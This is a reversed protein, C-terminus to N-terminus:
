PHSPFMQAPPRRLFVQSDHRASRSDQWRHDNPGRPCQDPCFVLYVFQRGQVMPCCYLDSVFRFDTGVHSVCLSFWSFILSFGEYFLEVPLLFKQSLVHSSRHVHYFKVTSHIVIFVPWQVVQLAAFVARSGPSFTLNSHRELVSNRAGSRTHRYASMVYHFVWSGDRKSVPEWRLTRSASYSFLLGM